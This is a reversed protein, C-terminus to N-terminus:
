QEFWLVLTEHKVGALFSGSLSNPQLPWLLVCQPRQARRVLCAAQPCREFGEVSGTESPTGETGSDTGLNCHDWALGLCLMM